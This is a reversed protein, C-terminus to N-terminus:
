KAPAKGSSPRRSRSWRIIISLLRATSLRLGHPPPPLPNKLTAERNPCPPIVVRPKPLYAEDRKETLDTAHPEIEYEVRVLTAGYRALEFSDAVVLAIPRASYRIEDDYLPRFPSGPPAIQDTYSDDAARTTAIKM